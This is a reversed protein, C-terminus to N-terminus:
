GYSKKKERQKITFSKKNQTYWLQVRRNRITVQVSDGWEDGCGLSGDVGDQCVKLDTKDNLGGM